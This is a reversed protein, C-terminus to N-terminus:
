VSDAKRINANHTRWIEVIARAWITRARHREYEQAWTAEAAYADRYTQHSKAFAEASNSLMASDGGKLMLKSRIRERDGRALVLRGQALAVPHPDQALYALAIEM